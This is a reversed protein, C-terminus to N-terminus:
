TFVCPQPHCVFILWCIYNKCEEINLNKKKNLANIKLVSITSKYSGHSLNHIFESKNDFQKKNCMIEKYNKKKRITPSVTCATYLDPM